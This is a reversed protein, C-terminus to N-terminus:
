FTDDMILGILRACQSIYGDTGAAQDILFPACNLGQRYRCTRRGMNLILPGDLRHVALQDGAILDGVGDQQHPAGEKSLRLAIM